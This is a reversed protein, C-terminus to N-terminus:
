DVRLKKKMDELDEVTLLELYGLAKDKSVNYFKQVIDLNKIEVPKAWKGWRKKRRVMHYLYDYKMIEPIFHYLNMENAMLVTDMHQSLARNVLFSNYDSIPLREPTYENKDNISNLWDFTTDSM